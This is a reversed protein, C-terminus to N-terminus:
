MNKFFFYSKKIKLYAMTSLKLDSLNAHKRFERTKKCTNEITKKARTQSSLRPSLSVAFMLMLTTTTFM